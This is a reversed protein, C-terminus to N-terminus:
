RGRNEKSFQDWFDDFEKGSMQDLKDLMKGGSPARGGSGMTTTPAQSKATFVEEQGNQPRKYGWSRAIEYILQAPNKGSNVAQVALQESESEIQQAIQSRSVGMLNLDNVRRSIVFQYADDYDPQQSRYHHVLQGVQESFQNRLANFQEYQQQNAYQQYALQREYNRELEIRSIKENLFGVPDTEMREKQVEAEDRGRSLARFADLEGKISALTSVQGQLQNVQNQYTQRRGREQQLENILGAIQVQEQSHRPEQEPEPPTQTEQTSVVEEDQIEDGELQAVIDNM